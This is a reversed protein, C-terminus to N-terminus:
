GRETNYSASKASLWLGNFNDWLLLGKDTHGFLQHKILM